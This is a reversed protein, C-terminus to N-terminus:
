TFVNEIDDDDEPDYKVIKIAVRKKLSDEAESMDRAEFVKGQQGRGLENKLKYRDM